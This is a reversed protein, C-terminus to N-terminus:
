NVEGSLRAIEDFAEQSTRQWCTSAAPGPYFHPVFGGQCCGPVPLMLDGVQDSKLERAVIPHWNKTECVVKEPRILVHCGGRTQIITVADKGVIGVVRRHIEETTLNCKRANSINNLHADYVSVDVDSGIAVDIDFHVFVTRAKAKHIHSLVESHPNVDMDVQSEQKRLMEALGAISAFAAKRMDRPNLTIYLAMAEDPIVLGEHTTYCGVPCELQRIKDLLTRKTSVFRKLQTKDSCKLSPMYKKRAQLCLFFRENTQLEPLWEIFDLLLQEDRIIRHHSM